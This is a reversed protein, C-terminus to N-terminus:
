NPKNSRKEPTRIEAHMESALVKADIDRSLHSLGASISEALKRHISPDTWRNAAAVAVPMFEIDFKTRRDLYEELPSDDVFGVVGGDIDVWFAREEFLESASEFRRITSRDPKSQMLISARNGEMWALVDGKVYGIRHRSALDDHGAPKSGDIKIGNKMYDPGGGLNRFMQLKRPSMGLLYSLEKTPIEEHDPLAQFKEWADGMVETVAVQPINEPHPKSM